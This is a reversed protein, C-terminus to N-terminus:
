QTRECISRCLAELMSHLEESFISVGPARDPLPVSHSQRWRLVRSMPSNSRSMLGRHCLGMGHHPRRSHPKFDQQQQFYGGLSQSRHFQLQIARGIKTRRGHTGAAPRGTFRKQQECDGNSAKYSKAQSWEQRGSGQCQCGLSSSRCKIPRSRAFTSTIALTSSSADSFPGLKASAPPEDNSSACYEAGLKEWHFSCLGRMHGQSLRHNQERTLTQRSYVASVQTGVLWHVGGGGGSWCM